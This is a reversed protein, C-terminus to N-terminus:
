DFQVELGLDHPLPELKGEELARNAIYSQLLSGIQHQPSSLLLPSTEERRLAKLGGAFSIMFKGAKLQDGGAAAAVSSETKALVSEHKSGGIARAIQTHGVIINELEM